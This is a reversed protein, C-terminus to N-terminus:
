IRPASLHTSEPGMQARGCQESKDVARVLYQARERRQLSRLDLRQGDAKHRSQGFVQVLTKDIVCFLCNSHVFSDRSVIAHNEGKQRM